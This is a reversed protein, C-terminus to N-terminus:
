DGQIERSACITSALAIEAASYHNTQFEILLDYQHSLSHSLQSVAFLDFSKKGIICLYSYTMAQQLVHQNQGLCNDLLEFIAFIEGVLTCPTIM